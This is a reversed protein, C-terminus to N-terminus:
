RERHKSWPPIKQWRWWCYNATLLHWITGVGAATLRENMRALEPEIAYSTANQKWHVMRYADIVGFRLGARRQYWEAEIGWGMDGDEPLPLIEHVFDPAVIILPGQEVYNSDRALLFPRSVNYVNTWWSLLSHGPQALSFGARKMLEISQQISGKVFFVDDDAIVVWPEDPVPKARYLWNLHTSRLGPGCGLTYSELEPAVADLAWLRIDARPGLEWLLCEVLPRNQRRYVM